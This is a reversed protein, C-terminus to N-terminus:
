KCFDAITRKWRFSPLRTLCFLISVFASTWLKSYEGSPAQSSALAPFLMKKYSSLEQFTFLVTDSILIGWQCQCHCDLCLVSEQKEFFVEKNAERGDIIITITNKYNFNILCIISNTTKKELLYFTYFFVKNVEKVVM